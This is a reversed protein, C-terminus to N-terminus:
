EMAIFVGADSKGFEYIKVINPHDLAGAAHAEREFREVANADATLHRRLIKLVAARRSRTDEALYVEGMGGISILSQVEYEGVRLGPSLTTPNRALMDAALLSPPLELFRGRKRDAELLSEVEARLGPDGMCARDLYSALETPALASAELYVSEIKQWDDATM